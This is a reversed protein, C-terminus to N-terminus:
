GGQRAESLQALLTEVARAVRPGDYPSLALANVTQILEGNQLFASVAYADPTENVVMRADDAGPIDPNRVNGAPIQMTEWAAALGGDFWLYSLEFTPKGEEAPLLACRVNTSTGKEVRVEAGLAASVAAADVADCPNFVTAGDSPSAVSGHGPPLSPTAAPEPDGGGGCGAALLLVVALAAFREPRPM